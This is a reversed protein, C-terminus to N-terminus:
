VATKKVKNKTDTAKTKKSTKAKRTFNFSPLNYINTNTYNESSYLLESTITEAKM